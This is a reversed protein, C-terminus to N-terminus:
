PRNDGGVRLRQDLVHGHPTFLTRDDNTRGELAQISQVIYTILNLLEHMARMMFKQRQEVDNLEDKHEIFWKAFDAMKEELLVSM